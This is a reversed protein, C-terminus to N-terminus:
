EARSWVLGAAIASLLLVQCSVLTLFKGIPHGPVGKALLFALYIACVANFSLSAYMARSRGRWLGITLTLNAICGCALVLGPFLLSWVQASIEGSELPLIPWVAILHGSAGALLFSGLLLGTVAALRYLDNDIANQETASM